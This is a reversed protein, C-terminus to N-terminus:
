GKVYRSILVDTSVNDGLKEHLSDPIHVNPMVSHM